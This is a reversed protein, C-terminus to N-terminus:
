ADAFRFRFSNRRRTVPRNEPRASPTSCRASRHIKRMIWPTHRQPKQPINIDDEDSGGTRSKANPGLSYLDFGNTNHVGPCVYVFARGWGDHLESKSLILSGSWNDKGIRGRRAFRLTSVKRRRRISTSNSPPVGIAYKHGNLGGEDALCIRRTRLRLRENLFQAPLGLLLSSLAQCLGGIMIVVRASVLTGSSDALPTEM